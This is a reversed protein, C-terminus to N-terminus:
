QFKLSKVFNDFASTYDPVDTESFRIYYVTLLKGDAPFIYSLQTNSKGYFSKENETLVQRLGKKDGIEVNECNYSVFGDYKTDQKAKTATCNEPDVYNYNDGIYMTVTTNPQNANCNPDDTKPPIIAIIGKKCEKETWGEPLKYPLLLDTPDLINDDAGVEKSATKQNTQTQTTTQNSQSKNNQNKQWVYWGAGGILGVVLIVIVIEVVSFGKQNAKM